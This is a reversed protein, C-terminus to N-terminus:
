SDLAKRVWDQFGKLYYEEPMLVGQEFRASHLGRQNLECAKLDQDMVIKAFEVVNNIDYDDANLTEPTFLWESVLETTEPGTPMLRVIRVHDSYAGIFMTPLSVTYIQGRQRDAETLTSIIHGQALGDLSWTEANSRLGGRYKPDSDAEHDQWGPVDRPDVIRRGYLPVLDVLEPHVNPCHLCENFNEWFSKWNCAMEKRWVHGVVMDELPYNAVEGSSRFFIEEIDWPADTNLNVMICGRWERVAIPYLGYDSKEFGAPDAFSSTKVLRGNDSHYCWQHYPCIIAKSTLQGSEETLLISGRHRCTNYFAKLEGDSDRLVFVPQDGIQFTRYSLPKPLASTHCVYLWEQKFIRDMEAKFVAPDYYWSGPLSPEPKKLSRYDDNRDFTQHETM